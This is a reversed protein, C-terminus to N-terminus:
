TLNNEIFKLEGYWRNVRSQLVWRLYDPIRRMLWLTVLAVPLVPLVPLVLREAFQTRWFPLLREHWPPGNTLTARAMPATPFDIRRLSPFDGARHFLGGNNSAEMAVAIALKKLAPHLTERAVPGTSITLMVIDHEPIASGLADQALLSTELYLNRKTIAASKYLNAM